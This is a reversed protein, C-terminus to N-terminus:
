RQLKRNIRLRNPLIDLHTWSGTALLHLTSMLMLMLPVDEGESSHVFDFPHANKDLDHAGSVSPTQPHTTPACFHNPCSLTGGINFNQLAVKSLALPCRCPVLNSMTNYLLILFSQSLTFTILLASRSPIIM